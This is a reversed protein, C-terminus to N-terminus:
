CCTPTPVSHVCHMLWFRGRVFLVESVQMINKRKPFYFLYSGQLQLVRLHVNADARPSRSLQGSLWSLATVGRGVKLVFYREKFTSSRHGRKLLSGTQEPPSFLGSINSM